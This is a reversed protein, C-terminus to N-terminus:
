VKVPPSAPACVKLLTKVRLVAPVCVMARLPGLPMLWLVDSVTFGPAAEWAMKLLTGAVMPAPVANEGVTVRLSAYLLVAVPNKPVRENVLEM